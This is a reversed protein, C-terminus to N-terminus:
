QTNDITRTYKSPVVLNPYNRRMLKLCETNGGVNNGEGERERREKSEIYRRGGSDGGRERGIRLTIVSTLFTRQM